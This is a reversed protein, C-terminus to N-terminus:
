IRGLAQMADVIKKVATVYAATRMDVRYKKYSEYVDNFAEQMVRQLRQDVEEKTWYYGQRNQVWEFYSVTVGGANALVDPCVFIGRKHLIQDAEPTTPGNALEVILKAKVKDANDATIQTELAAPILIDCDTTIPDVTSIPKAGPFGRVTKNKLKYETLAHPNMGDPNYVGATSDSVAVIKSGLEYLYQAIPQAANGWGQISVRAGKVNLNLTKMAAQAVFFGGRGTATDRGLSGGISLPKSTIVGPLVEGMVKYYEDAIWGMIQATTNVDPAPVDKDVGIFRAVQAAYGRTMHELENASLEKPNVTIGGKGGGYPIGVVANKISMWFSLSKVEDLSVGPHYRIGGKAPGRATSHQARYGTFVKIKGNDMKVPISVILIREHSSLVDIVDQKLKLIGAATKMPKLAEEFLTAREEM